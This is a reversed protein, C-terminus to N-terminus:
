DLIRSPWENQDAEQQPIFSILQGVQSSLHM